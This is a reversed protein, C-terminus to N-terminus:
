FPFTYLRPRQTVNEAPPFPILQEYPPPPLVANRNETFPEDVPRRRADRQRSVHKVVADAVQRGLRLGEENDAPFHVGAYLRSLANEEAIEHLREKEAPFFYGLIGEMCGAATAHGSPYAPFPPTELLPVLDPDVQDPRAIDTLYKFRWNIIMADNIASQTVALIRAARLPNVGYTDILRDIVPTIQKTPPGFAYYRAIKKQEDTLNALTEKVAELEEGKFDICHPNKIKLSALRGHLDTIQKRRNRRFFFLPWSGAQPELPTLRGDNLESWKPPEYRHKCRKKKM